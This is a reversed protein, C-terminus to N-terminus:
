NSTNNGQNKQNPENNKIKSVVGAGEQQGLNAGLDNDNASVEM